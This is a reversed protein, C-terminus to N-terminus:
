FLLLKRAGDLLRIWFIIISSNFTIADKSENRLYFGIGLFSDSRTGMENATGYIRIVAKM